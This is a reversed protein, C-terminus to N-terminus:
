TTLLVSIIKKNLNAIYNDSTLIYLALQLKDPEEFTFNEVERKIFTKFEEHSPVEDKEQTFEEIFDKDEKLFPVQLISRYSFCNIKKFKNTAYSYLKIGEATDPVMLMLWVLNPICYYDGSKDIIKKLEEAFYIRVLPPNNFLASAMALLGGAAYILFLDYDYKLGFHPGIMTAFTSKEQWAKVRKFAKDKIYLDDYYYFICGLHLLPYYTNGIHNTYNVKDSNVIPDNEIDRIYDLCVPIFEKYRSAVKSYSYLVTNNTKEFELTQIHKALSRLDIQLWGTELIFEILEDINLNETIRRHQSLIDLLLQQKENTSLRYIRYNYNGFQQRLVEFRSSQQGRNLVVQFYFLPKEFAENTRSFIKMPNFAMSNSSTSEIEFIFLPFKQNQEKFWAVDVALAESEEADIPLEVEVHYSLIRGLTKIADIFDIGQKLKHEAM